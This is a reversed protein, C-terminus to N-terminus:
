GVEEKIGGRAIKLVEIVDYPSPNMRRLRRGFLRHYDMIVGSPLISVLLPDIGLLSKLDQYDADVYRFYISLHEKIIQTTMAGRFGQDGVEVYLHLFARKSKDYEKVAFWDRIDLKSLELAENITAESIRTFGAIDIVRPDRDMYAFHPLKIGMEDDSLTLCRFMDGTRYRAFAGGKFNSIVIEYENGAILENILYTKPAYKSDDLSKELETRPIFEYFCGDPILVMGNKGWSEVAICASETGGFIELPRVGWLKEIKKKLLATDTGTCVLGKLNWVDKPLIPNKDRKKRIWAKLLRYNMKPSNRLYEVGHSSSNGEAFEEGIKVVVSSLGFFLDIGKQIGMKFGVKNRERFGMVEAQETPPLFKIDSLASSVLHPIMGTLYPMTAMGYLINEKGTMNVEGRGNAIALIITTIASSKNAAVMGETYPAVKVPHKGGEWTTEIWLLPKAPLASEAKSLLIDAYDEYRSLPVADRFEEASAPKRGGMIRQGLECQSYLEIQEMLLRDQIEMFETLSFDLFGCYEQWINDYQKKKLKKELKM